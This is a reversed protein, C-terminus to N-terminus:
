SITVPITVPSTSVGRFTGVVLVTATGPGVGTVTVTTDSTVDLTMVAKDSSAWSLSVRPSLLRGEATVSTVTVTVTVVQQEGVSLSVSPPKIIFEVSVAAVIVGVVEENTCALGFGVVLSLVSVRYLFRAAKM